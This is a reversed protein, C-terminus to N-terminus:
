PEGEGYTAFDYEIDIKYETLEDSEYSLDGFSISKIIPGHLKWHDVPIGGSNLQVIDITGGFGETSSGGGSFASKFSKSSMSAKETATLTNTSIPVSYGSQQIMKNLQSEISAAGGSQMDVLTMSIPEWNPIGPFKFKHNLMTYTKTDVTFTPKDISKVNHLTQSGIKVLFRFKQKPEVNPNNWFAM